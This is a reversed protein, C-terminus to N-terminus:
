DDELCSEIYKGLASCALSPVCHGTVWGLSGMLLEAIEMWPSLIFWSLGRYCQQFVGPASGVIQCYPCHCQQAWCPKQRWKMILGAAWTFFYIYKQRHCTCLDRNWDGAGLPKDPVSFVVFSNNCMVPHSICHQSLPGRNAHFYNLETFQEGEWM